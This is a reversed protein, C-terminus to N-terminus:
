TTLLWGNFSSASLEVDLSMADKLQEGRSFNTVTFNGAPGESGAVGALGDLAAAFIEAGALWATRIALITADGGPKWIMKYKITGKKLTPVEQTWGSNARTTVDAKDTSLDINVDQANGVLVGGTAGAQLAANTNATVPTTNIYLKGNYGLVYNPV